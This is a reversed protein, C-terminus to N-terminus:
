RVSAEIGGSYLSRGQRRNNGFAPSQAIPSAAANNVSGNIVMGDNADAAPQDVAPVPANTTSVAAATPDDGRSTARRDAHGSTAEYKRRSVRRYPRHLGGAPHEANLEELSKLTLTWVAPADAPITVDHTATM